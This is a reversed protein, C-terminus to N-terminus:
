ARRELITRVSSIFNIYELLFPIGTPAFFFRVMSDFDGLIFAIRLVSGIMAPPFIFLLFPYRVSSILMGFLVLMVALALGLTRLGRFTTRVVGETIDKRNVSYGVRYLGAMWLVWAIVMAMLALGLHGPAYTPFIFVLCALLCALCRVAFAAAFLSRGTTDTLALGLLSPAVELLGTLLFFAASVCAFFTAPGEASAMKPSHAAGALGLTLCTTLTAVAFAVPAPYHFALGLHVLRVGRRYGRTARKRDRDLLEPDPIV